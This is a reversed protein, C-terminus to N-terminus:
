TELQIEDDVRDILKELIVAPFQMQVNDKVGILTAVIRTDDILIKETFVCNGRRHGPASVTPVVRWLFREVGNEFRFEVQRPTHSVGLQGIVEDGVNVVVVRITRLPIEM